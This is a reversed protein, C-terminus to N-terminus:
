RRNEGALEAVLENWLLPSPPKDAGGSGVSQQTLSRAYHHHDDRAGPYLVGQALLSHRQQALLSQMATTGTKHMGIHVLVSGEALLTPGDLGADPNASM